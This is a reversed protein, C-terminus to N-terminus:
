TFFSALGELTIKNKVKTKPNVVTIEHSLKPMTEFFQEVEKFQENRMGEIFEILESKTFDSANWSDEDNYIVDICSVITDLSKDIDDGSDTVKNESDTSDSESGLDEKYEFNNEIFNEISPYKLKMYLNDDLKLVNTHNPDKKIKISDIDIEVKVETENDDTCIVKLEIKEGISKTRVKLFLYEVDFTSLDEVKIDKTIICDNLIQIVANTIQTIDESELAIVLIKEERVLFPRYKIKKGNSPIVLEYIPTSIKPLPM